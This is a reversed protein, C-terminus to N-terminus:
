EGKGGERKCAASGLSICGEMRRGLTSGAEERRRRRWSSRRMASASAVGGGIREAM